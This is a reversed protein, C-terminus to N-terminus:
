NFQVNIVLLTTIKFKLILQDDLHELFKQRM